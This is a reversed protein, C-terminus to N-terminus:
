VDISDLDEVSELEGPLGDNDDSAEIRQPKGKAPAPAAKHQVLPQLQGMSILNRCAKEKKIREWDADPVENPGPLFRVKIPKERRGKEDPLGHESQLTHTNAGNYMIVPM